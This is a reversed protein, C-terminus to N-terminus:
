GIDLVIKGPERSLLAMPFPAGDSGVIRAALEQVTGQFHVEFFVADRRIRTQRVSRVGRVGARLYERFARIQRHHSVGQLVVEVPRSASSESIRASGLCDGAWARVLREMVAMSQAATAEEVGLEASQTGACIRKGEITDYAKLDTTLRGDELRAEGAVVLRAGTLVGWQLCDTDRLARRRLHESVNGRALGRTSRVPEMGLDEFVRFLVLEASSLNHPSEPDEWWAATGRGMNESVLFLVKWAPREAPDLLGAERLTKQLLKENIRVKVLLTVKGGQEAAAVINYNQIEEHAKPLVGSLLRQLPYDHLRDALRNLLYYEVGKALARSLAAQKAQAVNGEVVRASGLALVEKDRAWAPIVAAVLVVVIGAGIWARWVCLARWGRAQRGLGRM